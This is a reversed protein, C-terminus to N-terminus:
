KPCVHGGCPKGGSSGGGGGGSGAGPPCANGTVPISSTCTRLSNTASCVEFDAPGFLTGGFSPGSTVTGQAYDLVDNGGNANLQHLEFYELAPDCTVTYVSKTGGQCGITAACNMPTDPQLESYTTQLVVGSIGAACSNNDQAYSLGPLGTQFPFGDNAIAFGGEVNGQRAMATVDATVQNGNQVLAPGAGEREVAHGGVFPAVSTWGEGYDNTVLMQATTVPETTLDVRPFDTACLQPSELTGTVHASTVRRARSADLPWELMARWVQVMQEACPLPQAGPNWYHEYGVSVYAPVAEYSPGNTSWWPQGEPYVKYADDWDGSTCYFANNRWHYWGRYGVVMHPPITEGDVCAGDNTDNTHIYAQFVTQWSSTDVVAVVFSTCEDLGTFSAGVAGSGVASEPVTTTGTPGGLSVQFPGSAAGHTYSLTVSSGQANLHVNSLPSGSGNTAEATSGTQEGGPAASCAALSLLGLAFLPLVNRHNTKM